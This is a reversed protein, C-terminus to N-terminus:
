TLLLGGFVAAALLLLWIPIRLGKLGLALVALLLLDTLGHIASPWVPQVLAAVLLGVAAAGVGAIMAAAAPSAQLRQWHPLVGLLLLWGPLFIGLTAILAGAIAGGNQVGVVAGLYTALTFMPGPVGQALSYGLLFEQTSLGSQILPQQELLPLVVHGGGFVLSGVRFFSNFLESGFGLLALVMLLAFVLLWFWGAAQPAAIPAAIAAAPPNARLWFYGCLAAAAIV